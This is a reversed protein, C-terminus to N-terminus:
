AAQFRWILKVNSGAHGSGGTPQQPASDEPANAEAPEETASESDDTNITIDIHEFVRKLAQQTLNLVQNQLNAASDQLDQVNVNVSDRLKEANLLGQLYMLLQDTLLMVQSTKQEDDTASLPETTLVEQVYFDDPLLQIAKARLRGYQKYTIDGTGDSMGQHFSKELARSFARLAMVLQNLSQRTNEDM